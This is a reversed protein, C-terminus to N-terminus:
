DPPRQTLEQPAEPAEGLDRRSQRERLIEAESAPLHTDTRDETRDTKAASDDM